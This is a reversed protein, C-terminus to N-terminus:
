TPQPITDKEGLTPGRQDGKGRSPPFPETPITHNLSVRPAGCPPSRRSLMALCIITGTLGILLVVLADTYFPARASLPIPEYEHYLVGYHANLAGYLAGLVGWGFAVGTLIGARLRAGKLISFVGAAAALGSLVSFVRASIHQDILTSLTHEPLIDSIALLWFIGVLAVVWAVIAAILLLRVIRRPTRTANSM